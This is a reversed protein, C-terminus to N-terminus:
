RALTAIDRWGYAQEVLVADPTEETREGVPEGGLRAYFGRAPRNERLVWLSAGGHGQAILSNAMCRMLARGVGAGQSAALVYIAGIEGGFGQAVLAPDRQPNCCGFGILRNGQEAVHVTTGASANGLVAAWMEARADASLDALMADPLIGAYSERWSAVHLAGLAPADDPTAARFITASDDTMGGTDVIRRHSCLGQPAARHVKRVTRDNHARLSM